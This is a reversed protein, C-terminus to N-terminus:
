KRKYGAEVRTILPTQPDKPIEVSQTPDWVSGDSEGSRIAATVSKRRGKPICDRRPKKAKVPLPPAAEPLGAIFRRTVHWHTTDVQMVVPKNDHHRTQDHKTSADRYSSCYGCSCVFVIDHSEVYQQLRLKKKSRYNCESVRHRVENQQM